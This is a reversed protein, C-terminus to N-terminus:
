TRGRSNIKKNSNDIIHCWRYYKGPAPSPTSPPPPTPPPAARGASSRTCATCRSCPCPPRPPSSRPRAASAGSVRLEVSRYLAPWSIYLTTDFIVFVWWVCHFYFLCVFIYLFLQINLVSLAPLLLNNRAATSLGCQRPGCAPSQAMQWRTRSLLASHLLM